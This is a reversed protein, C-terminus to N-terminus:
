RNAGPNPIGAILIKQNKYLRGINEEYPVPQLVVVVSMICKTSM